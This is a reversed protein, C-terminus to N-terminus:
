SADDHHINVQYLVIYTHMYIGGLQRGGERGKEIVGGGEFAVLAIELLDDEILLHFTDEGRARM